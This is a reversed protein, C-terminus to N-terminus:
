RLMIRCNGINNGGGLVQVKYEGKALKGKPVYNLVVQRSQEFEGTVASLSATYNRSDTPFTWTLSKDDPNIITGSPTIVKFSIAETLNNPVEFAINLKKARSAYIVLKETKKGRKATALFNDTNIKRANELQLLINKKEAELSSMSNQLDKNQAILRDYDSKLRSSEKELDSKVKRLEDLEKKNAQLSRNENKLLNIKKDNEAIKLNVEALLKQNADNKQKLASFDTKMKALDKEFSLKESLLKESTLKEANLNRKGKSNSVATIVIGILLLAIVIAGVFTVTKQTKNEM